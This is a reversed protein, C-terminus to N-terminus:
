KISLLSSFLNCVVVYMGHKSHRIENVDRLIVTIQGAGPLRVTVQVTSGTVEISQVELFPEVFYLQRNMPYVVVYWMRASLIKSVHLAIYLM